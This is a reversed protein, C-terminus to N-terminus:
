KILKNLFKQIEDKGNITIEDNNLYSVILRPKWNDKKNEIINLNSINHTLLIAETLNKIKNIMNILFIKM